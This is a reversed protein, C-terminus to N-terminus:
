RKIFTCQFRDRKADKANEILFSQEMKTHHYQIEAIGPISQRGYGSQLRHLCALVIVFLEAMKKKMEYRQLISLFSHFKGGFSFVDVENAAIRHGSRAKPIINIGRGKSTRSYSKYNCNVVEFPRFQYMTSSHPQDEEEEQQQHQYSSSAIRHRFQQRRRRRQREEFQIKWRVFYSNWCKRWWHGFTTAILLFWTIFHAILVIATISVFYNSKM